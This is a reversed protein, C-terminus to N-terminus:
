ALLIRWLREIRTREDQAAEEMDTVTESNLGIRHVLNPELPKLPESFAGFGMAKALHDALVIKILYEPPQFEEMARHHRYAVIQFPEPLGWKEALRAGWLQHDVGLIEEAHAVGQNTEDALSRYVKPAQAMLVIWGIDHLLGLTYLDADDEGGPTFDQALIATALAHRWLAEAHSCLWIPVSLFRQALIAGFAIRRVEGLGLLVIAHRISTIEISLAYLASNAVQLIKLTLTPDQSIVAALDKATAEGSGTLMLLRHAVYPLTPLEDSAWDIALLPASATPTSM